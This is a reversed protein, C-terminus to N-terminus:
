LEGIFIYNLCNFHRNIFSRLGEFYESPVPINLFQQLSEYLKGKGVNGLESSVFLLQIVKQASIAMELLLPSQSPTSPQFKILSQIFTSVVEALEEEEKKGGSATSKAGQAWKFKLYNYLMGGHVDWDGHTRPSCADLHEMVNRALQTSASTEAILALGGNGDLLSNILAEFSKQWEGMKGLYWIREYAIGSKWSKISFILKEDVGLRYVLFREAEEDVDSLNRELLRRVLSDRQRGYAKVQESEDGHEDPEVDMNRLVFAAWKWLGIAELQGAFSICLEFHTQEEAQYDIEELDCMLFWVLKYDLYDSTWTRPSLILHMPYGTCSYMKLLHMCLNAISSTETSPILITESDEDEMKIINKMMEEYERIAKDLPIALSTKAPGNYWLYLAFYQFWEHTSMRGVNESTLESLAVLSGSVLTFIDSTTPEMMGEEFIYHYQEIQILFHPDSALLTALILNGQSMAEKCAEEVVGKKLLGLVSRDVADYGDGFLIPAYERLWNCMNARQTLLIGDDVKTGEKHSEQEPWLIDCLKWLAQEQELEDRIQPFVSLGIQTQISQIHEKFLVSQRMRLRNELQNQLLARYPGSLIASEQKDAYSTFQSVKVQASFGSSGTSQNISLFQGSPLFCVRPCGRQSVNNIRRLRGFVDEQLAIPEKVSLFEVPKVVHMIIQQPPPFSQFQSSSKLQDEKDQDMHVDRILRGELRQLQPMSPELEMELESWIKTSSALPKKHQRAASFSALASKSQGRLKKPPTPLFHQSFLSEMEEDLSIVSKLLTPKELDCGDDFFSSNVMEVAAPVPVSSADGGPGVIHRAIAAMQKQQQSFPIGGLGTSPLQFLQQPQQAKPTTSKDLHQAVMKEAMVDQEDEGNEEELDCSYKSFHAVRFRWVCDQDDYSIFDAELRLCAKRLKEVYKLEGIKKLCRIPGNTAKDVPWVRQLEIEAPVNLGEYLPPKKEDDPYVVVEKHRFFVIEDVNVGVVNVPLSFKIKGFNHRGVEFGKVYCNGYGDVMKDLEDIPPNVYYGPRTCVVGCCRHPSLPTSTSTTTTNEAEKIAEALLSSSNESEGNVKSFPVADGAGVLAATKAPEDVIQRIRFSPSSSKRHAEIQTLSKNLDQELKSFSGRGLGGTQADGGGGEETGCEVEAELTNLNLRTRQKVLGGSKLWRSGPSASLNLSKSFPSSKEPSPKSGDASAPTTPASNLILRKWHNAKKPVLVNVGYGSEEGDDFGDFIAFKCISATGNRRPPAVNNLRKWAANNNLSSNLNLTSHAPSRRSKRHYDMMYQRIALPSTPRTMDELKSNSIYNYFIPNDKCLTTAFGLFGPSYQQQPIFQCQQQPQVPQQQQLGFGFGGTNFASPAPSTASSFLSVNSSNATNAGFGATGFGFNPTPTGGVTQNAMSFSFPAAPAATGTGAGFTTSAGFLNTTPATTTATSTLPNTGFGTSFGGFLPQAATTTTATPQPTISPFSFPKAQQQQQQNATNNSFISTAGFTVQQQPATAAGTGSGFFSTGTGFLPKNAATTATASTGGFMGTNFAPAATTTPAFSQKQGWVNLPQQQQQPMFSFPAATTTPTTTATNNAGFISQQQQPQSTPNFQFGTTAGGLGFGTTAPAATTTGFLGGPKAQAGFLCPAATTTTMTNQGFQGFATTGGTTAATNSSFINTQPQVTNLTGLAGFIGTTQTQTQPGKRNLQYDELRLEEFSKSEYEKM